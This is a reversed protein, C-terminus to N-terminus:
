RIVERHDTVTEPSLTKNTESNNNKGYKLKKVTIWIWICAMTKEGFRLCNQAVSHWFCSIPVFFCLFTSLKGLYALDRSVRISVLLVLTCWARFLPFCLFYFCMCILTFVHFLSMCIRLSEVNQFKFLKIQWSRHNGFREVKNTM